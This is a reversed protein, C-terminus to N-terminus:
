VIPYTSPVVSVELGKLANQTRVDAMSAEFYVYFIYNFLRCGLGQTLPWNLWTCLMCNDDPHINQSHM